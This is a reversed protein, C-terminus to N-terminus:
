LKMRYLAPTHSCLIHVTFVSVGFIRKEWHSLETGSGGQNEM